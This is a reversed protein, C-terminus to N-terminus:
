HRIRGNTGPRGHAAYFAARAKESEARRYQAQAQECEQSHRTPNVRTEGCPCCGNSSAGCTACESYRCDITCTMPNTM